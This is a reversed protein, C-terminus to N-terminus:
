VNEQRRVLGLAALFEDSFAGAGVSAVAGELRAAYDAELRVELAGGPTLVTVPSRCLGLRVAVAAAACSSTGSSLTYGAGREWIEIALTHEDKVEAFQVNTRNPFFPHCEVLPGLERATAPSPRDWFIVCHPNGVTACSVTLTRGAVQLSERLVERPPGTVPIEGSEFRVRGMALAIRGGKPDLVEATVIGGATAIAFPSPGALGREWLHRAFIRLGNGSKESESGDPNFIRVSPVSDSQTAAATNGPGWLIGDSGVGRHRDCILRIAEAGPVEAFRGPEMVLYDNGLGHYKWFDHM